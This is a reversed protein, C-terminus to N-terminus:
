LVKGYRQSICRFKRGDKGIYVLNRAFTKFLGKSSSRFILFLQDIVHGADKKIAKVRQEEKQYIVTFVQWETLISISDQSFYKESARSTGLILDVFAHGVGEDV